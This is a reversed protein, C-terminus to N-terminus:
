SRTCGRVGDADVEFERQLVAETTVPLATRDLHVEVQRLTEAGFIDTLVVLLMNRHHQVTGGHTGDFTEEADEDFVSSLDLTATLSTQGHGLRMM